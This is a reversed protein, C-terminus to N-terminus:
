PSDSDVSFSDNDKGPIFYQQLRLLYFLFVFLLGFVQQENQKSHGEVLNYTAPRM